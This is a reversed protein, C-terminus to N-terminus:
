GEEIEEVSIVNGNETTFMLWKRDLRVYYQWNDGLADAAECGPKLVALRSASVAAELDHGRRKLVDCIQKKVGEPIRADRVEVPVVHSAAAHSEEAMTGEKKDVKEIVAKSADGYVVMGALIKLKFNDWAGGFDKIVQKRAALFAAGISTEPELLYKGFYGVIFDSFHMANEYSYNQTTSGIVAWAKRKLYANALPLGKGKRCEKPDFLQAGHCARELLIVGDELGADVMDIHVAEYRVSPDGNSEGGLFTSRVGGHLIHAHVKRKYSTVPDWCPGSHPCTAYPKVAGYVLSLLGQLACERRQTCVAWPEGAYDAAAKGPSMAQQVANELVLKGEAADNVVDPIRTVMREPALFRRVDDSCPYACAYPLDSQIVALGTTDTPDKLEQFAVIDGAGVLVMCDLKKKEFIADVAAKTQAKNNDRVPPAIDKMSVADDIYYLTSEPNIKKHHGNLQVMLNLVTDLNSGYKNGLTTKNTVLMVKM